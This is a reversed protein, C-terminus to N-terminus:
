RRTGSLQRESQAEALAAELAPALARWSYRSEVSRRGNVRVTKRLEDDQVLKAIQSAFTEPDDGILLDTGGELDLGEAGVATSVTPIGHALSNLIKLRTGGGVRLPVIAVSAERLLPDLDAVYGHIRVQPSAFAAVDPPAKGGVVDVVAGPVTQRLIPFVERLFWVIGDRNADVHTPGVFLLHPEASGSKCPMLATTDTDITNPITHVPPMGGVALLVHRERDSPTLVLDADRCLTLEERRLKRGDLTMVARRIGTSNRARRLVLEYEINHLDLVHIPDKPIRFFAMPTSTVMVTAYSRERM